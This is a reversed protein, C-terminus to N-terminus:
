GFPIGCQVCGLGRGPMVATKVGQERWGAQREGAGWGGAAPRGQGDGLPEDLGELLQDVEVRLGLPGGRQVPCDQLLPLWGPPAGIGLAICIVM